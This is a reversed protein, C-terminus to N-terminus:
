RRRWRRRGGEGRRVLLSYRSSGEGVDGVGYGDAGRPHRPPALIAVGTSDSDRNRPDAHWPAVWTAAAWLVKSPCLLGDPKPLASQRGGRFDRQAQVM